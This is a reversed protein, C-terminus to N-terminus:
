TKELNAIAAESLGPIRGTFLGPMGVVANRNCRHM